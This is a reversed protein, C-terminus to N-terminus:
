LRAADYPFSLVTEGLAMAKRKRFKIKRILDYLLTKNHRKEKKQRAKKELLVRIPFARPIRYPRINDFQFVVLTATISKYKYPFNRTM